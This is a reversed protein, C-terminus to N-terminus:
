SFLRKLWGFFGGGSAPEPPVQNSEASQSQSQSQSQSSPKSSTSETTSIGHLQEYHRKLVSDAPPESLWAERKFAAASEYHRRLTSDEPYNPIYM